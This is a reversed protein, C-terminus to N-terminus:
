KKDSSTISTSCSITRFFNQRIIIDKVDFLDNLETIYFRNASVIQQKCNRTLHRRNQLIMDWANMRQKSSVKIKFSTQGAILHAFDPLLYEWQSTMALHRWNKHLNATRSERTFNDVVFCYSSLQIRCQVLNKMSTKRDEYM